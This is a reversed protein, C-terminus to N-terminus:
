VGQSLILIAGALLAGVPLAFAHRLPRRWAALLCVLPMAVAGVLLLGSGLPLAPVPPRQTYTMAALLNLFAIGFLSIHGLRLLRRPWSGYGGLWQEDHFRLGLVAGGLMGLLVGCWAATLHLAIM